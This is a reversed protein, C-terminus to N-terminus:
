SQLIRAKKTKKQTGSFMVQTAGVRGLRTSLSLEPPFVTRAEELQFRVRKSMKSKLRPLRPSPLKMKLPGLRKSINFRTGWRKSKTQQTCVVASFPKTSRPTCKKIRESKRFQIRDPVPFILHYRQECVAPFVMKCRTDSPKWIGQLLRSFFSCHVNLM